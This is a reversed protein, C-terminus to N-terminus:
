YRSYYFLSFTRCMFSIITTKLPLLDTQQGILDLASADLILTQKLTINDRVLALIQQAKEDLGLGMGCFVTAAATPIWEKTASLIASFWYITRGVWNDAWRGFNIFRYSFHTLLPSIIFIGQKIM